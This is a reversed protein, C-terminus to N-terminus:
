HKSVESLIAFSPVKQYLFVQGNREAKQLACRKLETVLRLPCAAHGGIYLMVERGTSAGRHADLVITCGHLLLPPHCSFSQSPSSLASDPESRSHATRM